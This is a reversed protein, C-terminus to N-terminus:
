LEVRFPSVSRFDKCSKSVEIRKSTVLGVSTFYLDVSLGAWRTPIVHVERESACTQELKSLTV